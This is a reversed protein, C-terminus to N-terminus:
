IDSVNYFCFLKCCQYILALRIRRSKRLRNISVTIFFYFSSGFHYTQLILEILACPGVYDHHLHSSHEEPNNHLMYHYNRVSMQPLRNTGDEPTFFRSGQIHSRYTTGFRRYSTLVAHQIIVWFLVTKM